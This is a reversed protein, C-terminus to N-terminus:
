DVGTLEALAAQGLEMNPRLWWSSLVIAPSGSRLAWSQQVLFEAAEPARDHNSEVIARAAAVAHWTPPEVGQQLRRHAAEYLEEARAAELFAAQSQVYEEVLSWDSGFHAAVADLVLQQEEESPRARNLLFDAADLLREGKSEIIDMAAAFAPAFGPVPGLLARRLQEKEEAPIDAKRIEWEKARYAHIAEDYAGIVEWDDSSSPPDGAGAGATALRGAMVGDAARVAQEIEDRFAANFSGPHRGLITGDPGILVYTPYVNVGWKRVLEGESGDHWVVWPLPEDALYDRATDLEDDM